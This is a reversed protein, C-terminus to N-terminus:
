RCALAVGGQAQCQLGLGICIVLTGPAGCVYDGNDGLFETSTGGCALIGCPGSAAPYEKTAADDCNYDWMEIPDDIFPRPEDFFM